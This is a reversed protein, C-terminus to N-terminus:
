VGSPKNQNFRYSKACLLSYHGKLFWNSLRVKIDCNKTKEVFFPWLLFIAGERPHFSKRSIDFKWLKM